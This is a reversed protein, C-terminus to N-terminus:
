QQQATASEGRLVFVMAHLVNNQDVAGPCITRAPLTNVVNEDLITVVNADDLLRLCGKFFIHSGCFADESLLTSRANKDSVTISVGYNSFGSRIWWNGSQYIDRGVHWVSSLILCVVSLTEWTLEALRSRYLLCGVTEGIEVGRLKMLVECVVQRRLLGREHRPRLYEVGSVIEFCGDGRRRPSAFWAPHQYRCFVSGDVRLKFPPVGLSSMAM